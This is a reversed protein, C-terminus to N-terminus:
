FLVDFMWIHCPMVVWMFSIHAPQLYLLRIMTAKEQEEEGVGCEAMCSTQYKESRKM